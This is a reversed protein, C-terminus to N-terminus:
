QQKNGLSYEQGLFLTMILIECVCVFLERTNWLCFINCHKCIYRKFYFFCGSLLVCYSCISSGALSTVAEPWAWVGITLTIKFHFPFKPAFFSSDCSFLSFPAFLAEFLLDIIEVRCHSFHPFHLLGANEGREVWDPQRFSSKFDSSITWLDKQPPGQDGQCWLAWQSLKNVYFCFWTQVLTLLWIGM